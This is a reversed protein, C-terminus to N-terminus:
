RMLPLGTAFFTPVTPKDNLNFTVLKTKTVVLQKTLASVYARYTQGDIEYNRVDDNNSLLMKTRKPLSKMHNSLIREAKTM